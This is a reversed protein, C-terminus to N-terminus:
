LLEVILKKRSMRAYNYADQDPKLLEIEADNFGYLPTLKHHQLYRLWNENRTDAVWALHFMINVTVVNEKSLKILDPLNIIEDIRDKDEFDEFRRSRSNIFQTGNNQLILEGEKLDQAAIM